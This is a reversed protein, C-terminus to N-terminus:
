GVWGRNHRRKSIPRIFHTYCGDQGPINTAGVGPKAQKIYSRPRANRADLFSQRAFLEGPEPFQHLVKHLPM